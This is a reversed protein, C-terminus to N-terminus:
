TLCRTRLSPVSIRNWLFQLIQHLGVQRSACCSECTGDRYVARLDFSAADPSMRITLRQSETERKLIWAILRAMDDVHIFQIQQGSIEARVAAHLCGNASQRMRAAYAGKGNPTGRFAGTPLKSVPEPLITPRLIFVDCGRLSPARQQVGSRKRKQPDRLAAHPRM